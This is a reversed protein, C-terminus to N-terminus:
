ESELLLNKYEIVTSEIARIVCLACGVPFSLTFIWQQWGLAPTTQNILLQFQVMKFGYYAILIFCIVVIAGVLISLIKKIPLKAKDFILTFGLHARTRVGVSTGVFTMLVFLNITVEETFALSTGLIYRSVVNSFAILCMISVSIIILSNEIRTLLNSMLM